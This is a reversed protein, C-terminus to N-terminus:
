CVQYGWPWRYTSFLFSCSEDANIKGKGIIYTIKGQIYSLKVPSPQYTGDVSQARSDSSNNGYRNDGVLFYEDDKLQVSIFNHANPDLNASPYTVSLGAEILPANYYAFNNNPQEVLDGNVYLAGMPSDDRVLQITEGPLGIVRKVKLYADSKLAGNNYDKEFYSAVIDFRQLKDVKSMVGYDVIDGEKLTNDFYLQNGSQYYFRGTAEHTTSADANLFPYMSMGVVYYDEYRIHFVVSYISASAVLVLALVAVSKIIIWLPKRRKSSGM